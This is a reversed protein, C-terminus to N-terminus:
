MANIQTLCLLHKGFRRGRLQLELLVVYRYRGTRLM